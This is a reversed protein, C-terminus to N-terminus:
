LEKLVSLVLNSCEEAAVDENYTYTSTASDDAMDSMCRLIAFPVGFNSCAHAIATGEMECCAPNFTQKIFDKKSSDSIFQDGSAVVGKLLKRGKLKENKSFAIEIKSVLNEDASLYPSKFGPVGGPPYGFFQIDFDHYVASTSVVFDFIRLGSALAGAIGTNIMSDINFNNILVTACIAANVKGVGCKVVVVNKEELIGEYFDLNGICTKKSETMTKVLTAVESEMAGIIGIKM